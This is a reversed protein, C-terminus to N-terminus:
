RALSAHLLRRMKRLFPDLDAARLQVDRRFAHDADPDACHVQEGRIIRRGLVPSADNLVVVDVERGVSAPSLYRRLDLQAEFRSREDPYLRRDLLVGVDIDSDGHSRAEAISGFVYATLVGPVPEAAFVRRVRALSEGESVITM